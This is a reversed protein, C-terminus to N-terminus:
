DLNPVNRHRNSSSVMEDSAHTASARKAMEAETVNEQLAGFKVSCGNFGFDMKTYSTDAWVNGAFGVICLVSVKLINM